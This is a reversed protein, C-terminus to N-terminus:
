YGNYNMLSLRLLDSLISELHKQCSSKAVGLCISLWGMIKVYAHLSSKPRLLLQQPM